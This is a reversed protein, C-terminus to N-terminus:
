KSLINEFVPIVSDFYVWTDCEHSSYKSKDRRYEGYEPQKLDNQNAIRGIKNASVGFMNGIDGATYTKRQEIAPLPIIQEGALVESAKSVLVNKYTESLTEVNALKLFTQAMRTQANMKMVHLREDMNQKQPIGQQIVNEMDHFRNIYKATFETGKVGTLKHAIFECGKKTVQYCLREEGKGDKYTSETFFDVSAINRENLQDIYRRVDRILDTHRKGVMESVELSSITQEINRM